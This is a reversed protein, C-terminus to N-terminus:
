MLYLSSTEAGALQYEPSIYTEGESLYEVPQADFGGYLGNLDEANIAIPSAAPYIAKLVGYDEAATIGTNVAIGILLASAITKVMGSGKLMTQGVVSAGFIGLNMERTIPLKQAAIEYAQYGAVAGITTSGANIIQSKNPKQLGLKAM